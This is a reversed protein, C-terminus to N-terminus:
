SDGAQHTGDSHGVRHDEHISEKTYKDKILLEGGSYLWKMVEERGETEIKSTLAELLKRYFRTREGYHFLDSMRNHLEEDILVTFKSMGPCEATM